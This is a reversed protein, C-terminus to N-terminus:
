VLKATFAERRKDYKIVGNKANGNTNKLIVEYGPEGDILKQKESEFKDQFGYSLLFSYCFRITWEDYTLKKIEWDNKKYNTLILEPRNMDFVYESHAFANRLSSHYGKSIVTEIDLNKGGFVDRIQERIFTHKTFDPVKVNWNYNESNCVNALKKLQRLFPKSEWIHTYILLEITISTKSDMTNEAQFSYANNLYEVLFKLRDKDRQGNIRYDVVHPNINTGVYDEVFEANSLFLIYDNENGENEKAYEFSKEIANDVELKIKRFEEKRIM